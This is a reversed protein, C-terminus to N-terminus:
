LSQRDAAPKRPKPCELLRACHRAPSLTGAALCGVLCGLRGRQRRHSLKRSRLPCATIGVAARRGALMRPAIVRTGHLAENHRFVGPRRVLARARQHVHTHSAAAAPVRTPRDTLAAGNPDVMGNRHAGHRPPRMHACLLQAIRRRVWCARSHTVKHARERVPHADLHLTLMAAHGRRHPQTPAHPGICRLADHRQLHPRVTAARRM